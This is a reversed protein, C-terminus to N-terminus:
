HERVEKISDKLNDRVSKASEELNDTISEGSEKVAKGVEEANDIEKNAKAQSHDIKANVKDAEGRIKEPTIQCGQSFIIAIFLLVALLSGLVKLATPFRDGFSTKISPQIDETHSEKITENSGGPLDQGIDEWDDQLVPKNIDFM